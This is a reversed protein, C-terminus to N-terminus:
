NKSNIARGVMKESLGVIRAIQVNSVGRIGKLKRLYENRENVSYTAIEQINKLGLIKILYKRAQEDNLKEIMEYEMFDNMNEQMINAKHFGVFEQIAEKECSHFLALIPKKNIIKNEKRYEQYSSWQYEEMEAIGSKQPNQHIYRCLNKLYEGSEVNKSLFRNQFLHGVREYKKNWYSSYSITLSQLAKSFNENKDYLILHVHNTMLCYVYLEYLYKEKTNYIEKMFKSYDQKDLFIDQKANGRLIIHYVKTSSKVRATRPMKDGRDKRNKTKVGM